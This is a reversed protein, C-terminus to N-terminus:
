STILCEYRALSQSWQCIMGQNEDTSRMGTKAVVELVDGRTMDIMPDVAPDGERELDVGQGHTGEIMIDPNIIDGAGIKVVVEAGSRETKTGLTTKTDNTIVVIKTMM